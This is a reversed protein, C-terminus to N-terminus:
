GRSTRPSPVRTLRERYAATYFGTESFLLAGEDKLFGVQNQITAPGYRKGRLAEFVQMLIWIAYEDGTSHDFLSISFDEGYREFAVQVSWGSTLAFRAHAEDRDMLVGGIEFLRSRLEDFPALKEFANDAQKVRMKKFFLFNM